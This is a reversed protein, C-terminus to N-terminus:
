EPMVTLTLTQTYDTAYDAGAILANDMSVDLTHETGSCSLPDSAIGSNNGSNLDIGSNDIQVTYPISQSTTLSSVQLIAPLNLTVDGGYNSGICFSASGNTYTGATISVGDWVLDIDDINAGPGDGRIVVQPEIVIEIQLLSTDTDDKNVNNCNKGAYACIDISASYTDGAQALGFESEDIFIEVLVSVNTGGKFKPNNNKKENLLPNIIGNGSTYTTTTIILVDGSGNSLEFVKNKGPDPSVANGLGKFDKPKTNNKKIDVSDLTGSSSASINGTGPWFRRIPEFDSVWTVEPKSMAAPMVLLNLLM